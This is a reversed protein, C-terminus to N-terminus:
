SGAITLWVATNQNMLKLSLEVSRGTTRVAATHVRQRRNRTSSQWGKNDQSDRKHWLMRKRYKEDEEKKIEEKIKTSHMMWWAWYSGSFPFISSKSSKYTKIYKLELNSTIRRPFKSHTAELVWCQQQSTFIKRNESGKHGNKGEEPLKFFTKRNKWHESIECIYTNNHTKLDMISLMHKWNPLWANRNQPIEEGTKKTRERSNRNILHQVM